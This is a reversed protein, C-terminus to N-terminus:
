GPEGREGPRNGAPRDPAAGPLLRLRYGFGRVTAILEPRAPDSEVKERLHRIHVDVTREDGFAEDGWVLNFLRRRDLTEGEHDLLTELLKYELRTLPVTEGRLRVERARRDIALGPGLDVPQAPGSAGGARRLVARVRAVLERPSFPKPIYDDAGTELGLVRDLEAAKATVMIIPLDPYSRRLARCVTLGDLEPLMLDLLVLSPRAQEAMRLATRGDGAWATDFGAQRLNYTMVDVLAPEDEVVLITESATLTGGGEAM